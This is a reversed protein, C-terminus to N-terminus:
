AYAVEFLKRDEDINGAGFGDIVEVSFTALVEAPWLVNGFLLPEDAIKRHEHVLQEIRQIVASPAKLAM